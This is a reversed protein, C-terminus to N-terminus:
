VSRSLSSKVRDFEVELQQIISRAEHLDDIQGSSELDRCLTTIAEAGLNLSSGKLTHVAQWLSDANHQTIAERMAALMLPTNMLFLQILEAVVEYGHEAQLASLRRQMGQPKTESSEDSAVEALACIPKWYSTLVAYVEGSQVPKSLYVDMGADFCRQRDSAMVKATMAIIPVRHGSQLERTRIAAASEYGDMEPMQCDMFICDYTIRSSAELAERGNAVLDVRCGLKELIIAAVKQNVANDEVVLVKMGFDTEARAFESITLGVDAEDGQPLRM